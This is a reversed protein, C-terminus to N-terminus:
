GCSMVEATRSSLGPDPAPVPRGRQRAEPSLDAIVLSVGREALALVAAVPYDKERLRVEELVFRQNLFRGTTNNDDIM